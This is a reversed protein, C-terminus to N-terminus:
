TRPSTSASTYPRRCARRAMKTPKTSAASAETVKRATPAAGGPGPYSFWSAKTATSPKTGRITM